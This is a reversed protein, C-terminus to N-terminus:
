ELSCGAAEALKRLMDVERAVEALRKRLYNLRLRLLKKAEDDKTNDLQMKLEDIEDQISLAKALLTKYRNKFGICDAPEQLDVQLNQRDCPVLTPWLIMPGGSYLEQEALVIKVCPLAPSFPGCATALHGSPDTYNIPNSSTYNWQNLTLPDQYDGNWTDRTLFRGMGPAYFRARLYLLQNYNGSYEGTYGYASQSSGLTSTVVGYPDYARAYSVTSGNALQRM